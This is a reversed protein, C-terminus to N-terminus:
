TILQVILSLLILSYIVIQIPLLNKFWKIEQKQHIAKNVGIFILVFILPYTPAYYRTSIPDVSAQSTSYIIFSTYTFLALAITSLSFLVIRELRANISNKLSVLYFVTTLLLLLLLYPTFDSRFVGITRYLNDFITLEPQVREGFFTGTTIYNNRMYLVIPIYSLSNILLYKAANQRFDSERFLFYFTYVIFLVLLPIGAYRTLTALSISLSAFVYDYLRHKEYHNIIFYFSLLILFSFPTESWALDYISLFKTFFFLLLLFLLKLIFDESFKNLLSGYTLLIGIMSIGSILAASEAPFKQVYMGLNILFPYLPVWAPSVYYDAAYHMNVAFTMYFVSDPSFRLGALYIFNLWFLGLSFAFVLILLSKHNSILERITERNKKQSLIIGPLTIIIGISAGIWQRPGINTSFGGIGIANASLSFVISLAGIFILGQIFLESKLISKM